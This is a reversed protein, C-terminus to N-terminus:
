FGEVAEAEEKAKQIKQCEIWVLTEITLSGGGITVAQRDGGDWKRMGGLKLTQKWPSDGQNAALLKQITEPAFSGLEDRSYYISRAEDELFDVQITLGGKQYVVTGTEEDVRVAAGYRQDCEARSEGLRATAPLTLLLILLLSKM